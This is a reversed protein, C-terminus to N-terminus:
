IHGLKEIVNEMLSLDIVRFDDLVKEMWDPTTKNELFKKTTLISEEIILLGETDLEGIEKSIIISKFPTENPKVSGSLPHTLLKHGEHIKDRVYYLLDLYKYDDLFEVEMKEKFKEYVAYNNTIILSKM